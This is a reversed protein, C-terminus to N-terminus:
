RDPQPPAVAGPASDPVNLASHSRVWGVSCQGASAIRVPLLIAQNLPRHIEPAIEAKWVFSPFMRLVSASAPQVGAQTFQVTVQQGPSLTTTLVHVSDPLNDWYRVDTDPRMAAAIDKTIAGLLMIAGGVLAVNRDGSNVGALGVAAGAALAVNGAKDTTDKFEAKGDLIAQVQRGGRTTAQWFIDEAAVAPVPKGAVHFIAGTEAFGFGRVFELKEKQDGAARKVPSTGTEAILLLNHNKEPRSLAPNLSGAEKFAEDALSADGRCQSAWGELFAMLAFDARYKAEEAYTDQLMGEKFSARANEYDGRILDLLGLYYHAMVREYSDGKFEKVNEKTWLSRAEEAKPNDAFIAQIKKTAADFSLEAAKFEGLELAALGARVHNLVANREGERLVRSYLRHTQAPKDDLYATMVNPDVAAELEHKQFQNCATLALASGACLLARLYFGRSHDRNMAVPM